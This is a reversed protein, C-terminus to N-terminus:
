KELSECKPKKNIQLYKFFLIIWGLSIFIDALNFVAFFKVWLFDTVEWLFVREFWNWIAWSLILIFSFDLFKDKLNKVEKIYYYFIWIILIITLIKLFPIQTSFAIWTNKFIQLYFFDWLINIKSTIIKISLYKSFLDLLVFFLIYIYFM